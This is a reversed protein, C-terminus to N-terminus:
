GSEVQKVDQLVVEIEIQGKIPAWDMRTEMGQYKVQEVEKV